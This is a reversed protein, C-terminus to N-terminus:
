TPGAPLWANVLLTENAHEAPKGWPVLQVNEVLGSVIVLGLGTDDSSVIEVVARGTVM